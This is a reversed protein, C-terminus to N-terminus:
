GKEEGGGQHPLALSPSNALSPRAPGRAVFTKMRGELVRRELLVRHGCTLCRLGIDAGLRVVTWRMGGCPHSKRLEVVDDLRFEVVQNRNM